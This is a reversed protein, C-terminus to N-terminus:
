PRAGLVARELPTLDWIALVVFLDHGIRKLLAPDEPALPKARTWTAEWLVHYNRLHRRPRLTPPVIPVMAKFGSTETKKNEFPNPVHLLNRRSVRRWTPEQTWFRVSKPTHEVWCTTADARCCALAPLIRDVNKNGYGHEWVQDVVKVTGGSRIAESLSLVQKGMAMHRYGNMIETLEADIQEGQRAEVERKYELFHRRAEARPMEMVPLNM